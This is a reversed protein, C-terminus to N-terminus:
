GGLLSGATAGGQGATTLDFDVELEAGSVDELVSADYRFEIEAEGSGTVEEQAVFAANLHDLLDQKGDLEGEDDIFKVAPADPDDSNSDGPWDARVIGGVDAVRATAFYYTTVPWSIAAGDKVLRVSVNEVGVDTFQIDLQDVDAPLGEAALDTEITDRVEVMDFLTGTWSANVACYTDSGETRQSYTVDDGTNDDQCDIGIQGLSFTMEVPDTREVPITFADDCGAAVLLSLAVASLTISRM